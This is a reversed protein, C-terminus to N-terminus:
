TKTFGASAFEISNDEPYYFMDPQKLTHWIRNLFSFETQKLPVVKKNQLEVGFRSPVGNIIWSAVKIGQSVNEYKKSM